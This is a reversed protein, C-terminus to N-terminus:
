KVIFFSGLSAGRFCLINIKSRHKDQQVKPSSINTYFVAIGSVALLKILRVLCSEAVSRHGLRSTKLSLTPTNLLSGQYVSASSHPIDATYDCIWNFRSFQMSQFMESQMNMTDLLDIMTDLQRTGDVVTSHTM